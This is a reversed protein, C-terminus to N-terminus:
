LISWNDSGHYYACLFIVINFCQELKYRKYIHIYFTYLTTLLINVDLSHKYYRLLWSINYGLNIQCLEIWKNLSYNLGLSHM